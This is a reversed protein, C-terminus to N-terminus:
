CGGDMWGPGRAAHTEARQHRAADRTSRRPLKWAMGNAVLRRLWGLDLDAPWLVVEVSLLPAQGAEGWIRKKPNVKPSLKSKYRKCRGGDKKRQIGECGGLSGRNDFRM